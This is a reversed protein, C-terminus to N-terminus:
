KILTKLEESYCFTRKLEEKLEEITMGNTIYDIDRKAESMTKACECGFLSDMGYNWPYENGGDNSISYGKYFYHGSYDKICRMEEISKIQKKFQEIMFKSVM